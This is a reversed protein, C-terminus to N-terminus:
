HGGGGGGAWLPRGNPDRLLLTQGTTDNTIEGAQLLGGEGEFGTITVADGANFIVAQRSAFWPPGMEVTLQGSETTDVTMTQQDASLVTGQWTSWEQSLAQPTGSGNLNGQAQGQGSQAGGSQGRGQGGQGRGQGQGSQGRGQGQGSQGRGQGDQGQGAWLPRGNPDRLLLKEGTTINDIQGAQFTGTEGEFGMVVVEHGSEFTVPQQDAFGARGLQLVLEGQEVTDVIISQPEVATVTGHLTLWDHEELM